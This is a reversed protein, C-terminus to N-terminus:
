PNSPIQQVVAFSDDTAPFADGETLMAIVAYNTSATVGSARVRIFRGSNGDRRINASIATTTSNTPSSVAVPTSFATANAFTTTSATAHRAQVVIKSSKGSFAFRQGVIRIRDYNIGGPGCDIVASLTGASRATAPILVQWRLDQNPIM